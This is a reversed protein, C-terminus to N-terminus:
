GGSLSISQDFSVLINMRGRYQTGQLPDDLRYSLGVSPGQPLPCVVSLVLSAQDDDPGFSGQAKYSAGVRLFKNPSMGWSIDSRYGLAWPTGSCINRVGQLSFEWSVPGNSAKHGLGAGLRGPAWDHDTSFTAEAFVARSSDLWRASADLMDPTVATSKTVRDSLQGYDWAVAYSTGSGDSFTRSESAKTSLGWSMVNINAESDQAYHLYVQSATVTWEAVAASPALTWLLLTLVSLKVLANRSRRRM